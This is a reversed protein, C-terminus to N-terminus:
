QSAREMVLDGNQVIDRCSLVKITSTRSQVDIVICNGLIQIPFDPQQRNYLILQQGVQMDQEAGLDIIAWQGSGIQQLDTQLYLLHGKLGDGEAPPVDYGLDKGAIGEKEEFPILYHGSRVDGCSHEIEAVAVNPTTFQIRARGRGRAILGYGPLNKEIELVRFIQGAEIGEDAGKNLYVVDSDSLMEKEEERESGIIKLGPLEGEWVSFSCYLDVENILDAFEQYIKAKTIQYRDEPREQYPAPRPAEQVGGVVRRLSINGCSIPMIIEYNNGGESVTFSYVQLPEGGAWELDRVVKIQGQSRFVMWEMIDGVALEGERYASQRVQEMFPVYLDPAGAVEFGRKIDDPYKELMAKMVEPAATGASIPIFKYRGVNRLKKTQGFTNLSTLIFLGIILFIHTKKNKM